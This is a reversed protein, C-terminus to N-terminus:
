NNGRLVEITGSQVCEGSNVNIIYFYTGDAFGDADFAGDPKAATMKGAPYYDTSFIMRGWRDYVELRSDVFENIGEIAFYDNKNDGNPTVVNMINDLEIVNLTDSYLDSGSRFPKGDVIYQYDTGARGCNDTVSLTYENVGGSPIAFIKSATIDAGDVFKGKGKSIGWGYVYDGTGNKATSVLAIPETPCHENLPNFGAKLPEFFPYNVQVTDAVITGCTDIVMLYVPLVDTFNAQGPPLNVTKNINAVTMYENQPYGNGKGDGWIITYEGNGDQISAHMDVPENSCTPDAFPDIMAKLPDPINNIVLVSDLRHEFACADSISVQYYTSDEPMVDVSVETLEEGVGFDGWDYRYPGIGDLGEATVKVVDAPCTLVLTEAESSLEYPDVMHITTSAVKTEGCGDQYHISIEIFKNGNAPVGNWLTTITFGITDVGQPFFFLTDLDGLIYDSGEVATGGFRVFISDTPMGIPRTLEIYAESCGAVLVSDYLPNSVADGGIQPIVTLFVDGFAAFSGAELFVGSDLAGDTADGIALKIHYWEGCQVASMATFTETMGNFQVDGMPMSYNNVFFQSDEVWNPNAALCTSASGGGTPVGGNVTNIAVPIETGPILAINKSNSSYPGTIGAGSLFFGFADNFQTCTYAQYENSAFVYNFKISDSTALFDFEIIIADNINQGAIAMLDPDNQIPNTLVGGFDGAVTTADGTVMAIGQNFGILNNSGPGTYLGAQNNVSAAPQGNITINNVEVGEGILYEEILQQVSLTNDVTVQAKAVYGMLFIIGVFIYLRLKM